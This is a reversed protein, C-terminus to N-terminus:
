LTRALLRLIVSPHKGQLKASTFEFLPLHGSTVNYAMRVSCHHQALMGLGQELM